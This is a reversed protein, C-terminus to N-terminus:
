LIATHNSFGNVNITAPGLIQPFDVKKYSQQLAPILKTVNLKFINHPILTLVVGRMM